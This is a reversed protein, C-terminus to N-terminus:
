STPADAPHLATPAVPYVKGKAKGNIAEVIVAEGKIELVKVVRVIRGTNPNFHLMTDGTNITKTM